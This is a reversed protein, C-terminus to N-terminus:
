RDSFVEINGHSLFQEKTEQKVETADGGCYICTYIPTPPRYVKQYEQFSLDKPAPHEVYRVEISKYNNGLRTEIDADTENPEYMTLAINKDLGTLAICGSTSMDTDAVFIFVPFEEKCEACRSIRIKGEQYMQQHGSVGRM